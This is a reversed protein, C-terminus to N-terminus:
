VRLEPTVVGVGMSFREIEQLLGLLRFLPHGEGIDDLGNDLEQLPDGVGSLGALEAIKLPSASRNSSTDSATEARSHRIVPPPRPTAFVDGNSGFIDDDEEQVATTQQVQSSTAQYSQKVPSRSKKGLLGSSKKTRSRAERVNSMAASPLESLPVRKRSSQPTQTRDRKRKRTGNEIATPHPLTDLWTAVSFTPSPSRM